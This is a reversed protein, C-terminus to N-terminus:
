MKEWSDDATVRLTIEEEMDKGSVKVRIEGPEYGARIVALAKGYYTTHSQSVFDEAMHPRASGFAQLTGAGTVEVTLKQDVSSRTVGNEGVLDIDLFCLDQGNARLLTREPSLKLKTAGTASILRARGTERGAADLAIAEIEGPEYTVKSFLAKCEKVKKRGVSRGNVLLQVTDADAYVVVGTRSGECGDWSWSEVADTDRWMSAGRFDKAHTVPDVGIAPEKRLGWILEGWYVEPRKKGCIDIVGPGGSIILGPDTDQKTKKDTYRVTGIGAEGLYDWSTWMFDGVLNPLAKVLEWNRYLSKPLTESGVIVRDPHKKAEKRYRSTAYNYGAIDLCPAIADAAKDAGSTSAMRDIIGGMRNMMVNFMTSTPVSDMTSSGNKNEKGEKDTGYIGKGKAAMSALMLNIGCTVARTGDQRRVEDALKRCLEQGEATGLESIENGVSYMVVSPHNYDKAIMADVDRKWWERFTDGGYDYANKKVLWMDFTEDMVYMGLADCAELMDKSIPNHASRIANFGAEKMIRVRRWEADRFDCAGLVGNDHHICGGRLLVTQGNVSFGESGWAIQRLGFSVSSEDWLKGERRIRARCRYLCPHDADWLKADPIQITTHCGRASAVTQGDADLIDVLMEEGADEGRQEVDVRVTDRDVVTVKVGEPLIGDEPGVYLWVPRYIGSGSYWRSNPAKSNDAIIVIENEEGPRLHGTLDTYFNTYGYPWRNLEEGNVLVSANQYVGECELIVARGTWEAPVMIKKRYIYKGEHFYACAGAPAADKDRKEYIMGDHPLHVARNEGTGEKEVSWNGNCDIRRM